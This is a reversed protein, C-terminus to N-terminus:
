RLLKVQMHLSMDGIEDLFLTGGEALEFRGQRASIAGTFAGKEHGFLESELLDQPIAGCNVPVFPRDRRSSFYHLNRAVVEK